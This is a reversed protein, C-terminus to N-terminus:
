KPIREVHVEKVYGMESFARAVISTIDMNSDGYLQEVEVQTLGCIAETITEDTEDVALTVKLM